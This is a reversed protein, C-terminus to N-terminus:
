EVTEIKERYIQVYCFSMAYQLITLLYAGLASLLYAFVNNGYGFISIIMIILFFPIAKVLLWLVSKATKGLYEFILNFRYLGDRKYEKAFVTFVFPLMMCIIISLIGFLLCVLITAFAPTIVVSLIVKLIVSILFIGLIYLIWCLQVPLAKFFIKFWSKDFEPLIGEKFDDFSNRIVGFIYGGLYVSIVTMVVLAAISMWFDAATLITRKSIENLPTSLMVPVGTLVFLMIHKVLVDEGSYIKKIADKIGLM